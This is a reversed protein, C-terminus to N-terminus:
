KGAKTHSSSSSACRVLTIIRWKRETVDSVKVLKGDVMAAVSGIGIADGIRYIDRGMPSELSLRIGARWVYRSVFRSSAQGFILRTRKDFYIRWANVESEWGLGDFKM